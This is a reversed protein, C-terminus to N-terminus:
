PHGDIDMWRDAQRDAQRGAQRGAQILIMRVQTYELWENKDGLYKLKWRDIMNNGGLKLACIEHEFFLDIKLYSNRQNSCWGDSDNYFRARKPSHNILYNNASFGRNPFM